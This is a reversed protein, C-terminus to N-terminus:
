LGHSLRKGHRVGQSLAPPTGTSYWTYWHLSPTPFSTLKFLLVPITLSHNLLNLLIGFRVSCYPNDSYIVTNENISTPCVPKCQFYINM